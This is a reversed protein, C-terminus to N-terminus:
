DPTIGDINEFAIRVNTIEKPIAKTWFDTGSQRGIEYAEKITNPVRM